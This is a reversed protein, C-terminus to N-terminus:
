RTDAYPASRSRRYSQPNSCQGHRHTVRTDHRLLREEQLTTAVPWLRKELPTVQTEDGRTHDRARQWKALHCDQRGYKSCVLLVTAQDVAVSM